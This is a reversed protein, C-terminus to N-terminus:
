FDSLAEVGLNKSTLWEQRCLTYLEPYEALFNGLQRFEPAKSQWMFKTYQNWKELYEPNQPNQGRIERRYNELTSLM